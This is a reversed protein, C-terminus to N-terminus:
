GGLRALADDGFAQKGYAGSLAVLLQDGIEHGHRDNIAKFGDLDLYVVALLQRRRRSQVMAQHLRDALLTRNPLM